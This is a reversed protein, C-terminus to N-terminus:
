AGLRDLKDNLEQIQDALDDPRVVENEKKLLELLDSAEETSMWGQFAYQLVTRARDRNTEEPLFPFDLVVTRQRAPPILRDCCYKLAVIEGDVLARERMAEVLEVEKDRLKGTGPYRSARKQVLKAM